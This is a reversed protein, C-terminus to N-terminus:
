QNNLKKYLFKITDDVRNLNDEYIAWVCMNCGNGCCEYEEPEIPSPLSILIDSFNQFEFPLKKFDRIPQKLLNNVIKEVENFPYKEIKININLSNSFLKKSNYFTKFM